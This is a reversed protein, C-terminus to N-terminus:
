VVSYYYAKFDTIIVLLSILGVQYNENRSNKRKKNSPDHGAEVDDSESVKSPVIERKRKEVVKTEVIKIDSINDKSNDQPKNRQTLDKSVYTKNKLTSSTLTESSDSDFDRKMLKSTLFKRHKAAFDPNQSSRTARPTIGVVKPTTLTKNSKPKGQITSDLSSVNQSSEEQSSIEKDGINEDVVKLSDQQSDDGKLDSDETKTKDEM